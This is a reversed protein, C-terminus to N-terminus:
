GSSGIASDKNLLLDAGWGQGGPTCRFVFVPSRNPVRYAHNVKEETYNYTKSLGPYM